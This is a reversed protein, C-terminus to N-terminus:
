SPKEVRGDVLSERGEKACDEYEVVDQVVCNEIRM